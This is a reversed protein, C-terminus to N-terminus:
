RGGHILDNSRNSMTAKGDKGPADVNEEKELNTTSKMNQLDSTVWEKLITSGIKNINSALKM